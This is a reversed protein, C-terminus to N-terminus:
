SSSPSRGPTRRRAPPAPDVAAVLELPQAEDRPELHEAERQLLDALQVGHVRDPARRARHERPEVLQEARWRPSRSAGCRALETARAVLDALVAVVHGLPAVLERQARCPAIVAAGMTRRACAGCRMRTTVAAESKSPWSAAILMMRRSSWACPASTIWRPWSRETRRSRPPRSGPPRARPRPRTRGPRGRPTRRSGPAVLQARAARSVDAHVAAAAARDHGLLDGLECARPTARMKLGSSPRASPSSPM